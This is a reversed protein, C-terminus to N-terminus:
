VPGGAKDALRGQKHESNASKNRQFPHEAFLYAKLLRSKKTYTHQEFRIDPIKRCKLGTLGKRLRIYFIAIGTVIAKLNIWFPKESETL